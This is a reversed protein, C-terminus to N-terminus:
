EEKGIASQTTLGVFNLPHTKDHLISLSKRCVSRHFLDCLQKQAAGIIKRATNVVRALRHGYWTVINFALVSEVLCRYVSELVHSGVRFCQLKRLFYLCQQAKVYVYVVSDSFSLKLDVATGLYKFSSVVEM